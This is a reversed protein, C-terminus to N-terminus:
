SLAGHEERTAGDAGCCEHGATCLSRPKSSVFRHQPRPTSRRPSCVTGGSSILVVPRKRQIQEAVFAAIEARRESLRPPEPQTEFFEACSADAAPTSSHLNLLPNSRLTPLAPTASSHQVVPPCMPTHPHRMWVDRCILTSPCHMGVWHHPLAAFCTGHAIATKCVPFPPCRCFGVVVPTTRGLCIASAPPVAQRVVWISRLGSGRPSPCSVRTAHLQHKHKTTRCARGLKAAPAVHAAQAPGTSAPSECDDIEAEDGGLYEVLGRGNGVMM